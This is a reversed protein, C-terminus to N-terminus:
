SELESLRSKLKDLDKKDAKEKDLVEVENDLKSLRKM